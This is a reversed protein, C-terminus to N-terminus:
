AVSSPSCINIKLADSCHVETMKEAITEFMSCSEHMEVLQRLDIKLVCSDIGLESFLCAM